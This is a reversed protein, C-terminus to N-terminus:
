DMKFIDDHGAPRSPPSTGDMEEDEEDEATEDREHVIDMNGHQKLRETILSNSPWQGAGGDLSQQNALSNPPADFGTTGHVFMQPAGSGQRGQMQIGPQSAPQNPSAGTGLQTKFYGYGPLAQSASQAGQTLLVHQNSYSNPPAGTGPRNSFSGLGPLMQQASLRGQMPPIQQSALSNPPADIGPNYSSWSDAGPTRGGYASTNWQQANAADFPIGANQKSEGDRPSNQSM